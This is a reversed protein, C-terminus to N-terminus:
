LRNQRRAGHFRWSLGFADFSDGIGGGYTGLRRLHNSPQGWYRRWVDGPTGFRIWAVGLGRGSTWLRKGLAGDLDRVMLFNHWM